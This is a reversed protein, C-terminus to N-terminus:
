SKLQMQTWIISGSLLWAHRGISTAIRLRRPTTAAFLSYRRSGSISYKPMRFPPRCSTSLSRRSSHLVTMNQSALLYGSSSTIQPPMANPTFNDALRVRQVEFTVGPFRPGYLAEARILFGDVLDNDSV